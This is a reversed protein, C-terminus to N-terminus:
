RIIRELEQSMRQKQRDTWANHEHNNIFADGLIEGQHFVFGNGNAGIRLQKDTAVGGVTTDSGPSGSLEGNFQIEIEDAAVDRHMAVTVLEGATMDPSTDQPQNTGDAIKVSLSDNATTNYIIWGTTDASNDKKGILTGGAAPSLDEYLRALVYAAGSEDALLDLDVRQESTSAHATGTWRGNPSAGSVYDRNVLSMQVATAYLTDGVTNSGSERLRVAGVLDGGVPTVNGAIRQWQDTIDTDVNLDSQSSGVFGAAQWVLNGTGAYGTPVWVYATVFYQAATLTYNGMFHFAPNNVYVAKNCTTVGSPLGELTLGEGEIDTIRTNTNGGGVAWKTSDVGLQPNEVLNTVKPENDIEFYDDTDLWAQAPEIGVIRALEATGLQNITVTAANVSDETDTLYPAAIDSPDWDFAVTGTNPAGAAIITRSVLGKATGTGGNFTGIELTSTGIHISAPVSSTITSGHQVLTFDGWATDIPDTSTFFAVSPTAVDYVSFLWLPGSLEAGDSIFIPATIGDASCAFRPRGAGSIAYLYSRQDGAALYKSVLWQDFGLSYDELNVYTAVVLSGAIDLVADDPTSAGNGDLGPLRLAKQDSKFITPDNTDVGVTSGLQAHHGRGTLDKLRDNAVDLYKMTHLMKVDRREAM